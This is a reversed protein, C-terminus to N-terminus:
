PRISGQSVSAVAQEDDAAASLSGSGGRAVCRKGLSSKGFSTPLHDEEEEAEFERGRSPAFGGGSSGLGLGGGSSGLGAAASGLGGRSGLGAAAAADYGLGGGAPQEPGFEPQQQGSPQAAEPPPQAQSGAHVGSSVFGVPRSYDAQEAAKRRRRRGGEEEDSSGKPCAPLCDSCRIRRTFIHDVV